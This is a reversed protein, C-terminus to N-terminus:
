CGPKSTIGHSITGKLYRVVRKCDLWYINTLSQRFQSLKNFHLEVTRLQATNSFGIVSRFLFPTEVIVSYHKFLVQSSSEFTSCPNPAIMNLRSLLNAPYKSQSLYLRTSDLHAEIGLFYQMSGLQKLAFQSNFDSIFKSIAQNDNGIVLIDDVYVLLLVYIKQKNYLFVLVNSKINTFTWHILM